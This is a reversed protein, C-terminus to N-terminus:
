KRVEEKSRQNHPSHFPESGLTDEKSRLRQKATDQFLSGKSEAEWTEQIVNLTSGGYANQIRQSVQEPTEPITALNTRETMITAEEPNVLSRSDMFQPTQKGNSPEQNQRM